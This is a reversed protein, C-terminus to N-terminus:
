QNSNYKMLNDGDLIYLNKFGFNFGHYLIWSKILPWEDKHMMFIKLLEKKKSHDNGTSIKREYYGGGIIKSEIISTSFLLLLISYFLNMTLIGLKLYIKIM